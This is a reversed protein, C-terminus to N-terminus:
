NSSALRFSADLLQLVAAKSTQEQDHRSEVIQRISLIKLTLLTCFFISGSFNMQRQGDVVIILHLRVQVPQWGVEPCCLSVTM